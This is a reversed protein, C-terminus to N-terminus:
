QGGAAERASIEEELLDVYRAAMGNFLLHEARKRKDERLLKMALKLAEAQPKGYMSRVGEYLAKKRQQINEGEEDLEKWTRHFNRLFDLPLDGLNGPGERATRTHSAFGHM